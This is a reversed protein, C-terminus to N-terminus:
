LDDCDFVNFDKAQTKSCLAEARVKECWLRGSWLEQLWWKEDYTMQAYTKPPLSKGKGKGQGKSAKIQNNLDITWFYDSRARKRDERNKVEEPTLGHKGRQQGSKRRAEITDPDEKHRSITKMIKQAWKGFNKAVHELAANPDTTLLSSPPAWQIGTQWLGMVFPKGGFNNKM